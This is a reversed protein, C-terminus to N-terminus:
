ARERLHFRANRAGWLMAVGIGFMPVLLGFPRATFPRGIAGVTAVITQATTASWVLRRAPKPVHSSDVVLLGSM